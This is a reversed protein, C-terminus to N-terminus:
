ELGKRIKPAIRWYVVMSLLVVILVYLGIQGWQATYSLVADNGKYIWYFPVWYLVMQWQESLLEAGAIAAAMPLFLMKINGAANIVDDNNLGEIFGILICIITSALVLMIMQMWNLDSFGTLLVLAIAGYLPLIIGSLCKGIIFARRSIPTMNMASITRDVKEEIINFAILMGGLVAMMMIMINVLLKKLPPVTREFDHITDVSDTIRIDEEYYILLLKAYDVIGEPENGQTLVYYGDGERIIGFVNDRRLVREEVADYDNFVEVKAFDKFFAVQDTNEGEVLALNVSSDNIGPALLNIGIGFIIPVLIIYMAMFERRSTLMDRMFVQWVKKLM